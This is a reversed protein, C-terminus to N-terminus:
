VALLNTVLMCNLKVDSTVEFSDSIPDGRYACRTEILFVDRIKISFTVIEQAYGEADLGYFHDLCVYCNKGNWEQVNVIPLPFYTKKNLIIIIKRVTKGMDSKDFKLFLRWLAIPWDNMEM